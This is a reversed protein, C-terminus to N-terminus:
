WECTSVQSTFVERVIVSYLSGSLDPNGYYKIRWGHCYRCEYVECVQLSVNVKKQLIGVISLIFTYMKVRFLKIQMQKECHM